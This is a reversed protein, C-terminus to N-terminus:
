PSSVLCPPMHPPRRFWRIYLCLHARRSPCELPALPYGKRPVSSIVTSPHWRVGFSLPHLHHADIPYHYGFAVSPKPLIDGALYTCLSTVGVLLRGTCYDDNLFPDKKELNCMHGMSCTRCKTSRQGGTPWKGHLCMRSSYGRASASPRPYATRFTTELRECPFSPPSAHIEM